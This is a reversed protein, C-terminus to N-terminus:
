DRIEFDCARLTERVEAWASQPIAVVTIKRPRTLSVFVRRVEEPRLGDNQVPGFWYYVDSPFNKRLEPSAVLMTAIHTEGKAQHITKVDFPTPSEPVKMFQAVPIDRASTGLKPFLRGVQIPEQCEWPCEARFQTFEEKAKALWECLPKDTKPLRGLLNFCGRKWERFSLDGLVVRHPGYSPKNFMLKLLAHEVQADAESWQATDRYHASRMLMRTVRKVSRPFEQTGVMGLLRQVTANTRTVITGQELPIDNAELIATFTDLTQHVQKDPYCFALPQVPYDKYEGQARDTASRSCFHRAVNCILQSSRYNSTLELHNWEGGFIDEPSLLVHPQAENFGYISQHPDGVLMLACKGTNTLRRLIELQTASTDQFEDVIIESFRTAIAVAIEPYTQLVRMAWYMADDHTAYGAKAMRLKAQGAARMETANLERPILRSEYRLSGNAQFHFDCVSLGKRKLPGPTFSDSVWDRSFDLVLEPRKPPLDPRMVRHAHPMFMFRDVFSDITGLFHPSPVTRPLGLRNLQDAIERAAVNTFSIAAIGSRQSGWGEMRHALRTGVTRTKGSGPCAQVVCNGGAAVVAAQELPVGYRDMIDHIIRERSNM